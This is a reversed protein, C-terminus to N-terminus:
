NQPLALNKNLFEVVAEFVRAQNKPLYFGHGEDAIEMFEFDKGESELAATLIEVQKFDVIQDLRGHVLFLPKNLAAIHTVPSIDRLADRDRWEEGVMERWNEYSLGKNSTKKLTKTSEVLDYVGSMAVGCQFLDPNKTLALMTAYGGYSMGMIAVRDKEAYGSEIAWEMGDEIDNQIGTGFDNKSAYFHKYGYGTSGRYNVQLVSYGNYALWQVVPDFGYSDRMWPGGHVLMVLPSVVSSDKTSPTYYGHITLGDRSVFDIPKSESMEVKILDENSYGIVSLTETEASYIYYGNPRSSKITSILFTTEDYNWNFVINYTDPLLQNIKKQISEFFPDTWYTYPVERNCVFGVWKKRKKSVFHYAKMETVDVFDYVPDHAVEQVIQKSQIDYKYISSTDTTRNSAFYFHNPDFDFGFFYDRRHTINNKDLDFEASDAKGFVREFPVWKKSKSPLYFFEIKRSDYKLAMRVDGSFDAFFSDYKGSNKFLVKSKQTELDIRYVQRVGNNDNASVLIGGKDDPLVSLVRPLTSNGWLVAYYFVFVRESDFLLTRKNTELNLMYVNGHDTQYIILEENKWEVYNIFYKDARNGYYPTKEMTKSDVVYFNHYGLDSATYILKEGSPSLTIASINQAKFFDEPFLTELIDMEFQAYGSQLACCLVLFVHKWIAM